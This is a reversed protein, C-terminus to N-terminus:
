PWRGHAGGWCIGHNRRLRIRQTM